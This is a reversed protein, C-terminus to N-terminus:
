PQGGEHMRRPAALTVNPTRKEVATRDTTRYSRAGLTGCERLNGWLPRKEVRDEGFRQFSLSPPHPYNSSARKRFILTQMLPKTVCPHLDRTLGPVPARETSLSRM